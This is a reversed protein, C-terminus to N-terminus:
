ASRLLVSVKKLELSHPLLLRPLLLRAVLAQDVHVLVSLDNFISLFKELQLLLLVLYFESASHNLFADRAGLAHLLQVGSLDDLRCLRLCDDVLLFQLLQDGVNVAGVLNVQNLPLLLWLILGLLILSDLRNYTFVSPAGGGVM